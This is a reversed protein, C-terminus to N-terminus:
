VAATGLDIAAPVYRQQRRQSALHPAALYRRVPGPREAPDSSPDSSLRRVQWAAVVRFAANHGASEQRPTVNSARGAPEMPGPEQRPTELGTGTM